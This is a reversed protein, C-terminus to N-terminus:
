GTMTVGEESGKGERGDTPAAGPSLPWWSLFAAARWRRDPM